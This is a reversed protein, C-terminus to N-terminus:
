FFLEVIALVKGAAFQKDTSFLHKNILVQM